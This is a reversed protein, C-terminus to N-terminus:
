GAGQGGSKQASAMALTRRSVEELVARAATRRGHLREVMKLLEPLPVAALVEGLVGSNDGHNDSAYGMGELRGNEEEQELNKESKNSEGAMRERVGGAPPVTGRALWDLDVRLAQALQILTARQPKSGRNWRNITSQQTHLLRALEAM